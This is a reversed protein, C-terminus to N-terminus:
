LRAIGIRRIPMPLHARSDCGQALIQLAIIPLPGDKLALGIPAPLSSTTRM